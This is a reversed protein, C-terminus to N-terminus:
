QECADDLQMVDRVVEHLKPDPLRLIHKATDSFDKSPHWVDGRPSKKFAGGHRKLVDLVGAIYQHHKQSLGKTFTSSKRGKISQVYLKDLMDLLVQVPIPLQDWSMRKADADVFFGSWNCNVLKDDLEDEKFWTSINIFECEYFFPMYDVSRPFINIKEFICDRFTLQSMDEDDHNLEMCDLYLQSIQINKYIKEPIKNNVSILDINGISSPHQESIKSLAVSITGPSAKKNKIELAAVRIGTDTLRHQLSNWFTRTSQYPNMVFEAM